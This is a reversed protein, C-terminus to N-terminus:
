KLPRGNSPGVPCFTFSPRGFQDLTCLGRPAVVDCLRKECHLKPATEWRPGDMLAAQRKAGRSHESTMKFSSTDERGRPVTSTKLHARGSDLVQEADRSSLVADQTWSIHSWVGPGRKENLAVTQGLFTLQAFATLLLMLVVRADEETLSVLSLTNKHLFCFSCAFSLSHAKSVYKVFNCSRPAAHTPSIFVNYINELSRVFTPATQKSCLLYQLLSNCLSSAHLFSCRLLSAFLKVVGM